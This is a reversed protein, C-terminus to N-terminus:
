PVPDITQPRLIMLRRVSSLWTQLYLTRVLPLGRWCYWSHRPGTIRQRPKRRSARSSIDPSYVAVRLVWGECGM